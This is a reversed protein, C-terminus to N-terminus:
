KLGGGLDPMYVIDGSHILDYNPGLHPNISKIYEFDWGDTLESLTDGHKVVCKILEYDQTKEEQRILSMEIKPQVTKELGKNRKGSFLGMAGSILVLGLTSALLSARAKEGLCFEFVDHGRESESKDKDSGYEEYM